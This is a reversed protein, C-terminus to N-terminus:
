INFFQSQARQYDEAVGIDIFMGNSVYVAPQIKDIMEALFDKEFSFVAKAAYANFIDTGLVYVGGNILGPGSQGKALFDILRGDHVKLRGYRSADDVNCAAIVINRNAEWLLKLQAINVDFYTDGNFIFVYDCACHNMSSKIAGGTGSPFDEVEYVLEMGLFSTGFYSTIKKAMYGVSIIIRKFKKSKLFTLLIELFPVHGIPAMPKPLDPVVAQLRTGLGGALIIAEM